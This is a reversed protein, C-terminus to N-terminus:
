RENREEREGVSRKCFRIGVTGTDSTTLIWSITIEGSVSLTTWSDNRSVVVAAVLDEFSSTSERRAENM